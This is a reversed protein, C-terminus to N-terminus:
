VAAVVMLICFLRGGQFTGTPGSNDARDGGQWCEAASIHKRNRYLAHLRKWFTVYTLAHSTYGKSIAKGSEAQHM